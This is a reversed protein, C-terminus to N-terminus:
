MDQYGKVHKSLQYCHPSIPDHCYFKKPQYMNPVETGCVFLNVDLYDNLADEDVKSLMKRSYLLRPFNCEHCKAIIRAKSAQLQFDAQKTQDKKEIRKKLSPRDKEDPEQGYIDAFAHFKDDFKLTPASLYHVKNFVSEPVQVTTHFVCDEKNCKKITISYTTLRLTPEHSLTIKRDIYIALKVLNKYSSFM